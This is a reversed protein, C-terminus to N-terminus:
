GMNARSIQTEFSLSIVTRKQSRKPPGRKRKSKIKSRWLIKTRAKRNGSKRRKAQDQTM